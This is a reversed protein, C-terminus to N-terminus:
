VYVRLPESSIDVAVPSRRGACLCVRWVQQLREPVSAIDVVLQREAAVREAAAVLESAKDVQEAAGRVRGVFHEALEVETSLAAAISPRLNLVDLDLSTTGLAQQLEAMVRQASQVADRANM